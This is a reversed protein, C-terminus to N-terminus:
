SPTRPTQCAGPRASCAASGASIARGAPHFLAGRASKRNLTPLGPPVRSVWPALDTKQGHSCGDAVKTHLIPGRKEGIGRKEHRLRIQNVDVHSDDATTHATGHQGEGKGGQFPCSPAGQIRSSSALQGLEVKMGTEIGTGDRKRRYRRPRATVPEPGQDGWQAGM